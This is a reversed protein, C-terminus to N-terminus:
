QRMRKFCQYLEHRRIYDYIEPEVLTDIRVRNQVCERILTGSCVTDSLDIIESHPPIDKCNARSDDRHAIIFNLDNWMVLGYEWKQIPAKNISGGVISDGGFVYWLEDNPYLKKYKRDLFFTPTFVDVELDHFDLKVKPLKEFALKIMIIKHQNSIVYTTKKNKNPGRPVVIIEDFNSSLKDIIEKHVKHPPNFSGGFIAIKKSSMIVVYAFSVM